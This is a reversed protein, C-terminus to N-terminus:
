YYINNLLSRANPLWQGLRGRFHATRISYAPIIILMM